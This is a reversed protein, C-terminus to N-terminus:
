RMPRSTTRTGGISFRIWSSASTTTKSSATTTAVCNTPRLGNPSATSAVRRSTCTRTTLFVWMQTPETAPAGEEPVQQLFGDIPLTSRYVEEDLRGDLRLPEAIRVARVTARGREDHTVTAPAVLAAAGDRGTQAAAPGALAAALVAASVLPRRM